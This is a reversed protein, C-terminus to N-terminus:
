SWLGLVVHVVELNRIERQSNPSIRHLGANVITKKFYQWTLPRLHKPEEVHIFARPTKKRDFSRYKTIQVVRSPPYVKTEGKDTWIQVVLDGEKIDTIVKSRGSWRISNIEFHKADKVKRLAKKEQIKCLRDEEECLDVPSVGLIWLRSHTPAVGKKKAKFHGIQPPKYLKKCLKIYEPTVPEVQLYKVLGLAHTLVNRDKCLLGLEILNSRSHKSINASAVIVVNDFIYMKIHLNSCTYVNVGKKVYKEVEDPNTQGTTLAGQSMDIILDDGKKLPLLSSAGRGLYAVVVHRHKSERALRTITPWLSEQLLKATIEVGGYVGSTSM